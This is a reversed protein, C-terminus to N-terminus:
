TCILIFDMNALVGFCRNGGFESELQNGLYTTQDNLFRVKQGGPLTYELNVFSGVLANLSKVEPMGEVRLDNIERILEKKFSEFQGDDGLERYRKWYDLQPLREKMYSRVAEEPFSDTVMHPVCVNILDDMNSYTYTGDAYCWKCYDENLSGDRNRGIIPDELPMGCCQCILQRPSGLLTNISVNYLKSLLQLTDTNPVTEGKEWRSVAQRTVFVKRALEDQTLGNKTRLEHLIEKTTLELVEEGNENISWNYDPFSAM